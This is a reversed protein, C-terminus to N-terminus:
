VKTNALNKIAGKSYFRYCQARLKNWGHEPTEVHDIALQHEWFGHVDDHWRPSVVRGVRDDDDGQHHLHADRAMTVWFSTESQRGQSEVECHIIEQLYRVFVWSIGRSM